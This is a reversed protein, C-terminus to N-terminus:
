MFTKKLYNIEGPDFVGPVISPGPYEPSILIGADLLRGFWQRYESEGIAALLYPGVRRWIPFDFQEWRTHDDQKMHLNVDYLSRKLGSLVAGSVPDSPYVTAALEDRFCLLHFWSSGPLPIVPVLVRTLPQADGLFPRWLSIEVDDPLPTVVPHTATFAPDPIEKGASTFDPLEQLVRRVRSQDTYWRFSRYGPFLEILARILQGGFISPYSTLLGKEINNKVEHRLGGPRHGLIARGGEQYLDLYRKGRKDYLRYERARRIEPLYSRLSQDADPSM